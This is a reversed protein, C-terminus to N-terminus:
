CQGAEEAALSCLEFGASYARYIDTAIGCLVFGLFFAILARWLRNYTRDDV